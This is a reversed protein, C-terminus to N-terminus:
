RERVSFRNSPCVIATVGVESGNGNSAPIVRILKM